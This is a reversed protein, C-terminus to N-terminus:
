TQNPFLLNSGKAKEVLEKFRKSANVLDDVIKRVNENTYYSESLLKIENTMEARATNKWKGAWIAAIGIISVNIPMILDNPQDFYNEVVEGMALINKKEKSLEEGFHMFQRLDEIQLLFTTLEQSLDKLLESQAQRGVRTVSLFPNVSPRRGKNFLDIDFYIHGDTMAMLNTQIYGSLDGMALEAVPLCSISNELRTLKGDKGEQIVTFNGARELLRAHIYFIDGPYSNRGPFRRALLSVERYYKAHTTLDDMVILVDNGEDRFYEAITMASYPTLNILGSPESSASAVVVVKDNVGNQEFFNHLKAIEVRSKAIAAYVCITGQKAQHLVTQLLFPTKGTKRDGVVLERQGKGLSVLLDVISVGTYFPKEINKRKDIGPPDNEILRSALNEEKHVLTLSEGFDLGLPNVIRGLLQEGVFTKILVGTRAAKTGVRVIQPSLLLVEAYDRELSLVQGLQGEEFMVFESSRLSPLGNVYILSRLSQEVYGVEGLKDIYYKFDPM